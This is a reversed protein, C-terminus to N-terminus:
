PKFKAWAAVRVTCNASLGAQRLHHLVAAITKGSAISEDVILLSTIAAECGQATYLFEDIAQQVNTAPDAMKKVGHRSFGTTLDVADTNRLIVERFPRADARSSPPSVVADFDAAESKVLEALDRTFTPLMARYEWALDHDDGINGLRVANLYTTGKGPHQQGYVLRVKEATPLEFFDVNMAVTIGPLDAFRL